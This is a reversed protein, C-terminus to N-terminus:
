CLVKSLCVSVVVIVVCSWVLVSGQNFLCDCCCPSVLWLRICFRAEVYLGLLMSCCLGFSFCYRAQVFVCAFCVIVNSFCGCDLAIGHKFM